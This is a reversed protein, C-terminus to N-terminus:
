TGPETAAYLAQITAIDAELRSSNPLDRRYTREAQALELGQRGASEVHRRAEADRGLHVCCLAKIAHLFGYTPNLSISEDISADAETWRGQAGLSYSQWAHVAWMLHWNPSLRTATNLQSLAEEPRNLMGCAVGHIYHFLGSGPAKRVARRTHREGEEPYGVYCLALGIYGLVSTDEPALAVAREAIGRIRQVEAPDDPSAAFYSSALALALM